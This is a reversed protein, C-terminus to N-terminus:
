TVEARDESIDVIRVPTSRLAIVTTRSPGEPWGVTVTLHHDRGPRGRFRHHDHGVEEVEGTPSAVHVPTGRHAPAAAVEVILVGPSVEDAGAPRVDPAPDLAPDPAPDPFAEYQLVTPSFGPLLEAGELDLAVLDLPGFPKSWAEDVTKLQPPSAPPGTGPEPGQGTTRM